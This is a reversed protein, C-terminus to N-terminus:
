SCPHKCAETTTGKYKNNSYPVALIDYRLRQKQTADFAKHKPTTSTSLRLLIKCYQDGRARRRRPQLNLPRDPHPPKEQTQGSAELIMWERDAIADIWETLDIQPVIMVPPLGNEAMVTSAVPHQVQGTTPSSKLSTDALHLCQPNLRNRNASLGKISRCIQLLSPELCSSCSKGALQHRVSLFPHIRQWRPQALGDIMAIIAPAALSSVTSVTDLGVIMGRVQAVMPTSLLREAELLLDSRPAEQIRVSLGQAANVMRAMLKLTYYEVELCGETQPLRRQLMTQSSQSLHLRSTGLIQTDRLVFESLTYQFQLSSIASQRSM